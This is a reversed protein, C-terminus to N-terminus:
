RTLAQAVLPEGARNKGQRKANRMAADAVAILGEVSSADDPHCAWGASATIAMAQEGLREHAERVSELLRETVLAIVRSDAGRAIIAFEDGGLRAVLDDARAANVLGEAAAKLVADGGQHGFRTNARKFDDLDLMVLAIVDTERRGESVHSDLAEMLARRNALGTLPDLRALDRAQERLTVLVNKGGLLLLGLLLYTPALVIMEAVYGGEVAGRDYLLPTLLVAVCGLIHPWAEDPPYFYAAFVLIFLLYFRAPSHAGGTAAMATGAALLGAGTSLHSIVAPARPWPVITLCALGWSLGAVSVAVIVWSHRHDVHPLVLLSFGTLGALVCLLGAMRGAHVREESIVLGGLAGSAPRKTSHM